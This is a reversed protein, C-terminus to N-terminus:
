ILDEKRINILLDFFPLSEISKVLKLFEESYKANPVKSRGIVYYLIYYNTIIFYKKDELGKVIYEVSNVVNMEKMLIYVDDETESYMEINVPILDLCSLFHFMTLADKSLLIKQLRANDKEGLVFQFDAENLTTPNVVKTLQSDELSGLLIKFFFQLQSPSPITKLTFDM